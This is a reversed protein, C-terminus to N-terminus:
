EHKRVNITRSFDNNVSFTIELYNNPLSEPFLDAWEIIVISDTNCLYDNFGIEQLENISNLRYYDFHFVTIKDNSYSNVITFTPSTVYNIGYANCFAKTFFTKGSGIEGILAVVMGPKIVDLMKNAFAITESENQVRFFEEM